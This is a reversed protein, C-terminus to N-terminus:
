PVFSAPTRLQTGFDAHVPVSTDLSKGKRDKKVEIIEDRDGNSREIIKDKIIDVSGVGEPRRELQLIEPRRELQLFRKEDELIRIEERVDRETRRPREVLTLPLHIENSEVYPREVIVPTAPRRYTASVSRPRTEIVELPSLLGGRVHSPSRHRSPSRELVLHEHRRPSRDM